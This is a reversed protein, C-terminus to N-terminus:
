PAGVLAPVEKPAETLAPANGYATRQVSYATRQADALRTWDDNYFLSAARVGTGLTTGDRCGVTGVIVFPRVSMPCWYAFFTDPTGCGDVV